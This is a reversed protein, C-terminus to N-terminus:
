RWLKLNVAKLNAGQQKTYSSLEETATARISANSAGLGFLRKCLSQLQCNAENRIDETAASEGLKQVALDEAYACMSQREHTMLLFLNTLNGHRVTTADEREMQVINFCAQHLTMGGSKRREVAQYFCKARGRAANVTTRPANFRDKADRSSLVNYAQVCKELTSMDPLKEGPVAGSASPRLKKTASAGSADGSRGRKSSQPQALTNGPTLTVQAATPSTVSSSSAGIAATQPHTQLSALRNLQQMQAILRECQDSTIGAAASSVVPLTSPLATSLVSVSRATTIRQLESAPLAGVNNLATGLINLGESVQKSVATLHDEIRQASTIQRKESRRMEPSMHINFDCLGTVCLFKSASPCVSCSEHTQIDRV